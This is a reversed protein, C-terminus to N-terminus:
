AEAALQRDIEALEALLAERRKVLDVDQATPSTYETKNLISVEINHQNEEKLEDIYAEVLPLSVDRLVIVTGENAVTRWNKFSGGSKFEGEVIKVGEGIKAGSDRGFARAVVRGFFKISNQWVSYGDPMNIQVDCISYRYGDDGYALYCATLVDAEDRIDFVWAKKSDNFKGALNRAQEVFVSNYPSTIIIKEDTREIKVIQKRQQM